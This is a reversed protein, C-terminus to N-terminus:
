DRVLGLLGNVGDPNGIQGIANAHRIAEELPMGKDKVLYAAWAHSSRQGVWCHLLVDGKAANIATAIKQLAEPTFNGGPGGLPVHVYTLGLEKALAAEDFPVTEDMEQQTRLNIVTTVGIFALHRLAQENPQGAVYVSGADAIVGRVGPYIVKQPFQV